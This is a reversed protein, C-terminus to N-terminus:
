PPPSTSLSQLTLREAPSILNIESIPTSLNSSHISSFATSVHDMFWKAEQQSIVIPDYDLRLTRIMDMTLKLPAFKPGDETGEFDLRIQAEGQGWADEHDVDLQDLLSGLTADDGFEGKHHAWHVALLYENNESYDAITIALAAMLNLLDKDVHELQTTTTEFSTTETLLYNSPIRPWTPAM